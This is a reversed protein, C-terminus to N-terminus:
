FSTLYSIRVSMGEDPAPSVDSVEVFSLSGTYLTGVHSLQKRGPREEMKRLGAISLLKVIALSAKM